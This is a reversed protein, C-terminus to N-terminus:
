SRQQTSDPERTERDYLCLYVCACVFEIPSSWNDQTKVLIFTAYQNVYLLHGGIPSFPIPSFPLNVVHDHVIKRRTCYTHSCLPRQHCSKRLCCSLSLSRKHTLSLPLLSFFIHACVCVCVCVCVSLSLLSLSLFRSYTSM